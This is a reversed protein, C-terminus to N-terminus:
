NNVERQYIIRDNGRFLGFTAIATPNDDFNGNNQWDYKLWEPVEYELNLTGRNGTGPISFIFERYIGETFPVLPVPATAQTDGPTIPENIATSADLLRYQWLTLGGSWIAGSNIEDAVNPVTCNDDTNTEFKIGNWSQVYMPMPLPSTEPGYSNEIHWRGFRVEVGETLVDETPDVGSFLKIADSDEVQTIAFPIKAPFPAEKSHANHEYTFHDAGNFEYLLVGSKEISPDLNNVVPDAGSTMVSDINIKEGLADPDIRDKEFDETPLEINIGSASLKMFDSYTYNQTIVGGENYATILIEPALGYTITGLSNTKQGSYVWDKVSCAGALSHQANLTGQEQVTQKFYAPTFRGVNAIYGEIDGAGLYNGGDLNASLHIIGVESFSYDNTVLSTSFNNNTESTLVGHNATLPDPMFLTRTVALKENIFNKAIDNGNLLTFDDPVGDNNADQTDAWQKATATLRFAEGAKKFTSDSGSTALANAGNLDQSFDLHFGFPRVVFDNSSGLMYDGTPMGDEDLINYRAHLQVKGSDPYTFIFEASNEIDSGFDLVVNTYTKPASSDLTDINTDAILNNIVVEGGACAAPDVCTASMEITTSDILVSQCAGTDLNKEIAQVKLTSSLFGVNSPKGSLQVPIPTGINNAFFRFGTDSFIVDCSSSAGNNCEYTQDLSLTATGATTYSFNTDTSGGIVTVMKDFTGNISLNVEIADNYPTSCASDACAKITIEEVDCTLGQGDHNIEFHDVSPVGCSDTFDKFSGGLALGGAQENVHHTDNDKDRDEVISFGVNSNSISCRKLWGGDSGSRTNQSAVVLPNGSYSNSLNFVRCSNIGAVNNATQFSEYNIDDTLQGTIGPTVAIYGITESTNLTGTNTEGRELAIQFKTNTVGKVTTALFPESIPFPGTANNANPENNMTQISAIIAPAQTFGLDTTNVTEWSRGNFQKGQFRSTNLTSVRMKAGGDLDYDGEAIALFDVTQAINGAPSNPNAKEPSEVQAIDFGDVTVNSIRLTLRDSNSATTPLSFVVPVVSFPTDFCVHTFEPNNATNNLTVRGAVMEIDSACFVPARASGDYNNGNNQNTYIDLVEDSALAGDFVMFEDLPARFSQANAGTQEWFSTGIFKLTGSPLNNITDVLVGDVYLQAQNNEYVVALYHWNTDLASFSYSGDVLGFADSYVGWKWGNNRDIYFLDDGADTSALVFYQNGDSASPKQFWTSVSFSSPLPISTEFHHNVSTLDAGLELKGEDFTNAGGIATASYSGTQDIVEFGTGTYECEDFRYNALPLAPEAGCFDGFNPEIQNFNVTSPSQLTVNKGSVAGTVVALSQITVDKKSYVFAIVQSNSLIDIDEKAHLLLRASDGGVNIEALHNFQIAKKVFIRVVGSGLLNVKSSSGVTLDGSLFYDGSNLNLIASSNLNINNYQGPSITQTEGWGVSINNSSNPPTPYNISASISGSNICPATDCSNGGSNDIISNNSDLINDPSNTVKAGWNFTISGSNNNNQVADPFVASCQEASVSFIVSSYLLAVILLRSSM